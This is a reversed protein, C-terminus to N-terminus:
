FTCTRINHGQGGCRSCRIIRRKPAQEESDRIRFLIVKRCCPCKVEEHASISNRIGAFCDMCLKHGCLTPFDDKTNEFCVCCTPEDELETKLREKMSYREEVTKLREKLSDREEITKELLETVSLSQQLIRGNRQCTKHITNAIPCLLEDTLTNFLQLLKVKKIIIIDSHTNDINEVYKKMLIKIDDTLKNM